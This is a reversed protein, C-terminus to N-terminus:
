PEQVKSGAPLNNFGGGAAYYSSGIASRFADQASASSEIPWEWWKGDELIRWNFWVLAKVRPFYMPLQTALLMAQDLSGQGDRGRDLITEGIMIPKSPAVQSCNQYTATSGTVFADTPHLRVRTTATWALGISTPMARTSRDTPRLSNGPDVNPCWVWTVNSAGAARDSRPSRRWSAVYDAPRTGTREPRPPSGRQREDGWDGACSSLGVMPRRRSRGPGCGRATSFGMPSTSAAAGGGGTMGSWARARWGPEVREHMPKGPLLQLRAGLPQPAGPVIAAKKGANSEFRNWTDADWPPDGWTGGYHYSYADSGRQHRAGTCPRSRFSKPRVPNRHRRASTTRPPSSCAFPAGGTRTCSRINPVPRAPSRSATAVAETAAAGGTRSRSRRAERGPEWTWMFLQAWPHTARSGRCRRTRPLCRPPPSSRPPSHRRRTSAKPREHGLGQGTADLRRRCRRARVDFKHARRRRCVLIGDLRLTAMPLRIRDPDDRGLSWDHRQSDPRRDGHRCHDAPRHESPPAGAPRPRCWM